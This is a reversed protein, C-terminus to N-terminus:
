TTAGPRMRFSFVGRQRLSGPPDKSNFPSKTWASPVVHMARAAVGHLVPKPARGSGARRAPPAASPSAKDPLLRAIKLKMM